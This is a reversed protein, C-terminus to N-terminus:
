RAKEEQPYSYVKVSDALELKYVEKIIGRQMSIFREKLINIKELGKKFQEPTLKKPKAIETKNENVPDLKFFSYNTMELGCAGSAFLHINISISDSFAHLGYFSINITKCNWEKKNDANLLEATQKFGDGSSYYIDKAITNLEQIIVLSLYYLYNLYNQRAAQLANEKEDHILLVNYYKDHWERINENKLKQVEKVLEESTTEDYKKGYQWVFCNEKEEREEKCAILYENGLKAIHKKIPQIRERIKIIKQQLEKKLM